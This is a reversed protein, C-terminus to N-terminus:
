LTVDCKERHLLAAHNENVRHQIYEIDEPTLHRFRGQPKLYEEVPKLEKVRKTITLKRNVIEYLPFIGTEVALEGLEIAKNIPHKWGTPCASLVHLYAPGNADLAKRTKKMLDTPYSPCGTAVYPIDHAAVIFPMSKKETHQGISASGKPSTTTNAGYPTQSSRQIGTNMYAENDTCVYLFNHGRELAGSLAQFGIDATGGDGAIAIINVPKDTAYRGKRQLVKIGSEVGSAIAAANEFAIHIWPVQWATEPFASTVIEMCGTASCVITNPGAVKMIHRLGLIEGCGQCARHGSAILEHGPMSRPSYSNKKETM